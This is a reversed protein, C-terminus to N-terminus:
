FNDREQVKNQILVTVEQRNHFLSNISLIKFNKLLEEKGEEIEKEPNGPLKLTVIALGDPKMCRALGGMIKATEIPEINMDDVIIDFYGQFKPVLDEIRCKYHIVKKNNKLSEDLDGPDVAIVDYGYDALVKTWGGPAAGCDLAKKGQGNLHLNYKSLAEKL